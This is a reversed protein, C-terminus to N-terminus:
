VADVTGAAGDVTVWQGTHLLRTAEEIGIVTPIGYERAVVAGHSLLGGAEIILGSCFTFLPTWGPNTYPAVLIEGEHLAQAEEINKVVRARATVRGSSCPTGQLRVQGKPMPTALRTGRGIVTPPEFNRYATRLRLYRDIAQRLADPAVRGDLAGEVDDWRLLFIEDPERLWGIERWREGLELFFRRCHYFALSAVVRMEERWWVYRRVRELPQHFSRRAFPWLRRLGHTLIATAKKETAIARDHQLAISARADHEAGRVYRQLTALVFSPDQDWRPEALDEDVRSMYRYRQIFAEIEQWFVQGAPSAELRQRIEEPTGGTLAAALEPQGRARRALDWLELTPKATRVDGLGTILDGFPIASQPTLYRNFRALVPAFEDQAQEALLSVTIAVHNTRAHLDVM